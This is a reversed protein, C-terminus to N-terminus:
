KNTLEKEFAILDARLRQGGLAKLAAILDHVEPLSALCTEAPEGALGAALCPVAAQLTTSFKERLHASRSLLLTVEPAHTYFLRIYRRGDSSQFLVNDRYSRVLTLLDANDGAVTAVPCVGNDTSRELLALTIEETQGDSVTVAAGGAAYGTKSASVTYTMTDPGCVVGQLLFAGLDDTYAIYGGKDTRVTAGPVPEGTVADSIIGSISGNRLNGYVLIENNDVYRWGNEQWNFDTTGDPLPGVKFAVSSRPSYGANHDTYLEEEDYPWPELDKDAATAQRDPYGPNKQPPVVRYPGDGDLKNEENLFGPDLYSGDKKYALLLWLGGEIVIPDGHNRGTCHPSSYDVWGGNAADAVTDYWFSAQPYTDNIYYNSGGQEFDFYQTWGDPSYVAATTSDDRIGTHELLDKVIVGTYQTYFDNGDTGGRSTNMLMFQSHAPLAEIDELSYIFYPAPILSPNDNPDGPFTLAQIEEKNTYGDDDSDINEIKAFSDVRFRGANKYDWGYPNLTDSINTNDRGYDTVHHCWQCNGVPSPGRRTEVEGGTHCLACDDLRTGIKDPYAEQFVPSDMEGMHHYAGFAGSVSLLLGLTMLVLTKKM